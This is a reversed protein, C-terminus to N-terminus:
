VCSYLSLLGFCGLLTYSVLFRLVFLPPFRMLSSDAADFPARLFCVLNDVIYSM